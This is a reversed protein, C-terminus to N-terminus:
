HARIIIKEEEHSEFHKLNEYYNTGMLALIVETSTRLM